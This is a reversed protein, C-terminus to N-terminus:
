SVLARVECIEFVGRELHLTVQSTVQKWSVVVEAPLM